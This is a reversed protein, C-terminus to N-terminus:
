SDEEPYEYSLIGISGPLKITEGEYNIDSKKEEELIKLAEVIVNFDERMLKQIKKFTKSNFVEHNGM